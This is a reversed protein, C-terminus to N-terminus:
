TEQASRQLAAKEIKWLMKFKVMVTEIHEGNKRLCWLKKSNNLANVNGKEKICIKGM